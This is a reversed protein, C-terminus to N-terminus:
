KNTIQRAISMLKLLSKASENLSRTDCFGVIHINGEADHDKTGAEPRQVWRRVFEDNGFNEWSIVSELLVILRFM